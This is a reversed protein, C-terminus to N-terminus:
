QNGLSELDGSGMGTHFVQPNGYYQLDGLGTIDAYLKDTVWIKADAIGPMRIDTTKSQLNAALYRGAGPLKVRQETVVGALKVTGHGPISVELHDAGLDEVVIDGVGLVNISVQPCLLRDVWVDGSGYIDITFQDLELKESKVDAAGYISLTSLTPLTIEFRIPKSPRLDKNRSKEPDFGLILQGNEVEAQLYDLLNDDITVLLLPGEGQKLAIDGAGMISIRDFEEVELELTVMDRSGRIVDQDFDIRDVIKGTGPIEVEFTRDPLHVTFRPLLGCACLMVGISILAITRATRGTMMRKEGKPWKRPSM